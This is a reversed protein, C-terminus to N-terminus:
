LHCPYLLLLHDEPSPRPSARPRDKRQPGTESAQIHSTTGSGELHSGHRELPGKLSTCGVPLGCSLAPDQSELAELKDSNNDWNIHFRTVRPNSALINRQLQSFDPKPPPNERLEPTPYENNVYYGVRIFEQGHYTCTILVVTVGVADSEPILSPNPAEAQFVFM